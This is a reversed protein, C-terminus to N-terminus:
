ADTYIYGDEITFIASDSLYIDGAFDVLEFNLAYIGDGMDGEYFQTDETYVVM